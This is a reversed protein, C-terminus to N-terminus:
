LEAHTMKLIKLVLEYTHNFYSTKWTAETSAELTTSMFICLSYFTTTKLDAM